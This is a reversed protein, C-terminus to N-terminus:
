CNEVLKLLWAQHDELPKRMAETFDHRNYIRQVKPLSHNLIREAIFPDTFRCLNSGTTRRCDHLVFDTVGSLKKLREFNKSWGNTYRVQTLLEHMLPTIPLTHDNGNKTDHITVTKETITKKALPESKRFALLCILRVVVGYDGLDAAANWVARLEKDTLVRDRENPKAPSKLGTMPSVPMYRPVCWSFFTAMAAHCHRAEQPANLLGDTISLVDRTTIDEVRRNGVAPVLYKNLLRKYDRHTRDKVDISALYKTVAAHISSQEEPIAHPNQLKLRAAERAQKLSMAPYHGITTRKRNKGTVIVFTKTQAGVRCGFSPMLTDYVTVQPSQFKLNAISIDTLKLRM